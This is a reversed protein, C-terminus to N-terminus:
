SRLSEWLLIAAKRSPGWAYGSLSGDQRLVRHCPILWAVPNRAVASAVARVSRPAAVRRAVDAYSALAGM